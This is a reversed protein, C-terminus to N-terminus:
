TTQRKDTLHDCVVEQSGDLGLVATTVMNVTQANTRETKAWEKCCFLNFPAVAEGEHHAPLWLDETTIHREGELGHPKTVFKLKYLSYGNVKTLTPVTYFDHVRVHEPILAAEDPVIGDRLDLHAEEIDMIRSFVTHYHDVDYWWEQRPMRRLLDLGRRRVRPWRCKWAVAHLPYLLGFDLSLTKSLEDPYRDPDSVILEGIRLIEEFDEQHVDWACECDVRYTTTGMVTAYWMLRIVDAADQQEKNWTAEQRRVLDDFNAKWRDRTRRLGDIIILLEASPLLGKNINEDLLQFVGATATVLDIMAVRVERLTQFEDALILLGTDVPNLLVKKRTGTSFESTNVNFLSIIPALETEVFHSQFSSSRQGWPVQPRGGTKERWAWLLNIGSSIHSAAANSNGRLFEFATFLISAVVVIPIADPDTATKEITARIARTYLQVAPDPGHSAANSSPLFKRTGKHEHLSGIAAIAQRIAPEVLSLQLVSGKWFSGEFFGALQSATKHFFFELARSEWSTNATVNEDPARAGPAPTLGITKSPIEPGYRSCEPKGEDCKVKRIQIGIAPVSKCTFCGTRVKPKSARKRKVATSM